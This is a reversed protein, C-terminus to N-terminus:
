SGKKILFINFTVSAVDCKLYVNSSTWSTGTTPGQYLSGAKDQHMVIYGIPISGVTHAITNEADPTASSTFQQFEGSINHGREGDVGTGFSVRGQTFLQLNSVDSDLDNIYAKINDLKTFDLLQRNSKKVFKM